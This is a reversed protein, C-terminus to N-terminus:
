ADLPLEHAGIPLKRQGGSGSTIDRLRGLLDGLMTRTRTSFQMNDLIANHVM